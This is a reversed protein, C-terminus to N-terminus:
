RLSVTRSGHATGVDSCFVSPWYFSWRLKLGNTSWIWPIDLIRPPDSTTKFAKAMNDMDGKM